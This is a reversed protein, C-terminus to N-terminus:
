IKKELCKLGIDTLQDASMGTPVGKQKVYQKVMERVDTMIAKAEKIVTQNEATKGDKQKTDLSLVRYEQAIKRKVDVLEKGSIGDTSLRVFNGTLDYNESVVDNATVILHRPSFKNEIYKKQMTDLDLVVVSKKQFADGYTLELPSGVYEANPSIRQASHYHGLFTAPWDAFIKADVPVMDGDYEVIVDAKTGYLVNLKAGHVAMHGLLIDGAGGNATKIDELEKVPNDAHPMWDIKRGGVEMRTPKDVIHVRDIATLPRISNIEWKEKHYMDHNGVLCFFDLDAHDGMYKVFIEFTRFYNMVDIKSREHFLDGLFFVHRCNQEIATKFVWELVELCHHLRDVRDKHSHIHLDAFLLAKL